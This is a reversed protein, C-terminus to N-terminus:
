INLPGRRQGLPHDQAALQKCPAVTRLHETTDVRQSGM